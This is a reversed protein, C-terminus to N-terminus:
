VIDYEDAMSNLQARLEEIIRKQEKIHSEQPNYTIPEGVIIRRSSKSPYIPQFTLPKKTTKYYYKALKIFGEYMSGVHREQSQYDVEPAIMLNEGRMLAELSQKMTKAISRKERYVPIARMSKFLASVLPAFVDAFIRSGKPGLNFKKPALHTRYHQRCLKRDYLKDLAWLHFTVPMYLACILPGHIDFHRCVLVTSEEIPAKYICEYRHSITRCLTRLTWYWPGYYFM